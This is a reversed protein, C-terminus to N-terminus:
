EQWQSVEMFALSLSGPYDGHFDDVATMLQSNGGPSENQVLDLVLLNTLTFVLFLFAYVLITKKFRAVKSDWTRVSGKVQARIRQALFPSQDVREELAQNHARILKDIDM